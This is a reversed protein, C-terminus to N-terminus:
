NILPHYLRVESNIESEGLLTLLFATTEADPVLYESESIQTMEPTRGSEDKWRKLKLNLHLTKFWEVAKPTDAIFIVQEQNTAANM